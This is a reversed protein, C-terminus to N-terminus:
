YYHDVFFFFSSKALNAVTHRKHYQM